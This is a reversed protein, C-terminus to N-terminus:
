RKLENWKIIFEEYSRKQAKQFKNEAHVAFAAITLIIMIFLLTNLEGVGQQSRYIQVM